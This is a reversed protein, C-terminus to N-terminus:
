KCAYFLKSSLSRDSTRWKKWCNWHLGTSDLLFCLEASCPFECTRRGKVSEWNQMVRGRNAAMGSGLDQGLAPDLGPNPIFIPFLVGTSADSLPNTLGMEPLQHFDNCPDDTLILENNRHRIKGKDEKGGDGLFVQKKSILEKWLM